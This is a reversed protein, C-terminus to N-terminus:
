SRQTSRLVETLLKKRETLKVESVIKKQDAPLDERTKTPELANSMSDWVSGPKFCLKINGYVVLWGAAYRKFEVIVDDGLGRLIESFEGCTLV